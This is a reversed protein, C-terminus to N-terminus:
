VKVKRTLGVKLMKWAFRSNGVLYRKWMRRPEQLFRYLWMMGVNRLWAPGEKTSGALIDLLGGVGIVVPAGVEGGRRVMWDERKPTSIGVLVVDAGSERIQASLDAEHEKGFYGDRVGVVQIGRFRESVNQAAREVREKKTGLLFVRGGRDALVELLRLSLMVIPVHRVRRLGFFRCCAALWFSDSTVLDMSLIQDRYAPRDEMEVYMAANVGSVLCRQRTTDCIESFHQVLEELTYCDIPCDGIIVRPPTVGVKPATKKV